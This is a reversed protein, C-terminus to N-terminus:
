GGPSVGAPWLDFLELDVYEDRRVREHRAFRGAPEAWGHLRSCLSRQDSAAELCLKRLPLQDFLAAAFDRLQDMVEDVHAPDALVSLQGVGNQFDADFLQVLGVPTRAPGVLSFQQAVRDWLCRELFQPSPTRGRLSWRYTAEWDTVASALWEADRPSVAQKTLM